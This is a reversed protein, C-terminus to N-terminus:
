DLGPRRRLAELNDRAAPALDLLRRLQPCPYDPCDACTQGGRGLGCVRITCQQCIFFRPGEDQQCGLCTVQCAEIPSDYVQSWERATRQRLGQDDLSTALYAPCIACDLGCYAIRAPM